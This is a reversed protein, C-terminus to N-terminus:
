EVLYYLDRLRVVFHNAQWRLQWLVSRLFCHLTWGAIAHDPLPLWFGFGRGFSM